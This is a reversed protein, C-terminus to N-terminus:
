LETRPIVTITTKVNNWFHPLDEAESSLANNNNNGATSSFSTPAMISMTGRLSLDQNIKQFSTLRLNDLKFDIIMSEQRIRREKM